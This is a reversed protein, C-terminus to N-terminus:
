KKTKDGAAPYDSYYQYYYQDNKKLDFGNLVIGLLHSEMDSERRGKLVKLGREVMEYTTKGAKIVLVTGDLIKSLILSDTVTMLPPSDWVIVDFQENLVRMLEHMRQSGLLESPNPPIPGSPIVSLNTLPKKFVTEIESTSGALYTSLGSLNNLRFISHIRPRRLDSDVLL